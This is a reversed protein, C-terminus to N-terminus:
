DEVQLQGGYSQFIREPSDIINDYVKISEITAKIQSENWNIASTMLKNNLQSREEELQSKVISWEPSRLLQDMAKLVVKKDM